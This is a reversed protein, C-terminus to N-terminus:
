GREKSLWVLQPQEGAAARVMGEASVRSTIMKGSGASCARAMPANPAHPDIPFLAYAQESAEAAVSAV